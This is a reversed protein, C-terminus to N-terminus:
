TGVQFHLGLETYMEIQIRLLEDHMANSLEIDGDTVVFM